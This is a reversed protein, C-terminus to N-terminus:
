KVFVSGALLNGQRDRIEGRRPERPVTRQIKDAAEKRLSEHHFVQLDVLRYGLTAFAVGLLVAMTLLRRRQVTKAM